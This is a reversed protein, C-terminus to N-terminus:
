NEFLRIEFTLDFRYPVYVLFNHIIRWTRKTITKFTPLCFEFKNFILNCRVFIIGSYFVTSIQYIQVQFIWMYTHIDLLFPKGEVLHCIEWLLITPIYQCWSSHNLLYLLKYYLDLPKYPLSLPVPWKKFRQWFFVVGACAYLHM